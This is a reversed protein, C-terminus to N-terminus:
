DEGTLAARAEPSRSLLGVIDPYNLQAWVTAGRSFAVQVADQLDSELGDVKDRLRKNEAAQRELTDKSLTITERDRANNQREYAGDLRECLGSVNDNNTM